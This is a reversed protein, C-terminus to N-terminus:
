DKNRQMRSQNQQADEGRDEVMPEAKDHDPEVVMLM